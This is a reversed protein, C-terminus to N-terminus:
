RERRATLDLRVRSVRPDRIERPARPALQVPSETLGLREKHVQPALSELLDRTERPVQSEQHVKIVKLDLRVQRGQPEMLVQREQSVRHARIEKLVLLGPLGLSVQLARIERLARQDLQVPPEMPVRSEQSELRAKIVRLVLRVQLETLDL